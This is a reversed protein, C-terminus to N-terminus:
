YWLSSEDDDPVLVGLVKKSRNKTGVNYKVYDGLTWPLDHIPATPIISNSCIVALLSKECKIGLGKAGKDLV